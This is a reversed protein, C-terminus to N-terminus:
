ACVIYINVLVKVNSQVGYENEDDGDIFKTCNPMIEEEYM